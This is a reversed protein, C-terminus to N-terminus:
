CRRLPNRGDAGPYSRSYQMLPREQYALLRTSEVGGEDEAEDKGAGLAAEAAAVAEEARRRKFVM